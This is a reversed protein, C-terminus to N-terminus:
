PLQANDLTTSPLQSLYTAVDVGDYVTRKTGM